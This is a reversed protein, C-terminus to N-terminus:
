QKTTSCGDEVEMTRAVYCVLEISSAVGRKGFSVVDGTFCELGTWVRLPMGLQPLAPPTM